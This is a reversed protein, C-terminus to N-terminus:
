IKKWFMLYLGYCLFVVVILAGLMLVIKGNETRLKKLESEHSRLATRLGDFEKELETREAPTLEKLRLARQITEIRYYSRQIMEEHKTIQFLCM